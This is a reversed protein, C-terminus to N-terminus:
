KESTTAPTELPINKSVRSISSNPIIHIAKDPSEIITTRLNVQKVVGKVGAIDVVDGINYQNELIMFFGTVVDQVLKQSGFGVALGVVGASTIIPAINVGWEALAMVFVIGWVLVAAANGMISKLTHLRPSITTSSGVGDNIRKLLRSISTNIIQIAIYGAVLYVSTKILKNTYVPLEAMLITANQQLLATDIPKM